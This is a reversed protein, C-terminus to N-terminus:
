ELIVWLIEKEMVDRELNNYKSITRNVKYDHKIFNNKSYKNKPSVTALIYKAECIDAIKDTEKLFFSHIGYGRYKESVQISDFTLCNHYNKNVDKSLNREDHRNLVVLGLAVLKNEDFLGYCYDVLFSEFFEDKTTPVFLENNEMKSM